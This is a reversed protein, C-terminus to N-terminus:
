DGASQATMLRQQVGQAEKSLNMLEQQYVRFEDNSKSGTVIGKGMSDISAELSMSGNEAFFQAVIQQPGMAVFRLEPLDAKGKLQFKGKVISASDETVWRGDAFKMLLIRGSDKGKIEGNVVFKDPKACSIVSSVILGLFLM